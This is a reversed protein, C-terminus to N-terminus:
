VRGTIFMQQQGSNNRRNFNCKKLKAIHIIGNKYKIVRFILRYLRIRWSSGLATIQLLFQVPHRRFRHIDRENNASLFDSGSISFRNHHRMIVPMNQCVVM